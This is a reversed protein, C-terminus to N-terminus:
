ITSLRKRQNRKMKLASLIKMIVSNVNGSKNFIMQIKRRVLSLKQNLRPSLVINISFLMVNKVLRLIEQPSRLM